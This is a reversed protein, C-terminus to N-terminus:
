SLAYESARILNGLDNSYKQYKVPYGAIASLIEELLSSDAINALEERYVSRLKRANNPHVAFSDHITGIDFNCGRVVQRLLYGDVSHTVNACLHNANNNAKNVTYEYTFTCGESEVEVAEKSMVPIYVHHNDPMDWSYSDMDTWVSNVSELFDEGGTFGTSLASYFAELQNDNFAERPIALSNYYHVMLPQKLIDRDVYDSSALQRNMLNVCYEYVDERKGTNILNVKSATEKCGTLASICQLGSATADYFVPCRVPLGELADLYAEVTKTFLMPEPIGKLDIVYTDDENFTVRQNVLLIGKAIRDTWTLKDFGALNAISILLEEKGEETCVEATSFDLLAKHYESSQLSIEYGKNYVRGRKDYQWMFHFSNGLMDSTVSAVKNSDYSTTDSFSTLISTNITWQVDQLQNLVDLAVYGKHQNHSGLIARHKVTQYGGNEHNTWPKVVLLPPLVTTQEFEQLVSSDLHILPKVILSGGTQEVINYFQGALQFIVDSAILDLAPVNCLASVRSIFAQIHKDKPSELTAVYLAMSLETNDTISLDLDNDLVIQKVKNVVLKKSYKNEIQLQKSLM